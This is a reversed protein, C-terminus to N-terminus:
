RSKAPRVRLSHGTNGNDGSGGITTFDEIGNHAALVRDVSVVVNRMADFRHRERFVGGCALERRFSGCEQAAAHLEM